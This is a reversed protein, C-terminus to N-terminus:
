KSFKMYFESWNSLYEQFAKDINNYTIFAKFVYTLNHTMIRNGIVLESEDVSDYYANDNSIEIVINSFIIHDIFDFYKKILKNDYAYQFLDNESQHDIYWDNYGYEDKTIEFDCRYHKTFEKKVINYTREDSVTNLASTYFYQLKSIIDSLIEVGWGYQGPRITLRSLDKRPLNGKYLILAHTSSSNTEFIKWRIKIM